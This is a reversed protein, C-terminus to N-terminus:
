PHRALRERDPIASGTTAPSPHAREDTFAGITALGAREDADFMGKIDQFHGDPVPLPHDVLAQTAHSHSSRADENSFAALGISPM